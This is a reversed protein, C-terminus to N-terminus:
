GELFAFYREPIEDFQLPGRCRRCPLRPAAAAPRRPVLVTQILREEEVACSPCVYPAVFSEITGTEVLDTGTLAHNCFEMSCRVFRVRRPSLGVLFRNWEVRGVSNIHHLGFLDLEVEELRAVARALDHFSATETFSGAIAVLSPHRPDLRWGFPANVFALEEPRLTFAIGHEWGEAEARQWAVQGSVKVAAGTADSVLSLEVRKTALPADLRLRMGATSLDSVQGRVVGGRQAVDAGVQGAHPRSRAAADDLLHRVRAALEGTPGPLCVVDDYSCGDLLPAGPDLRARDVVLVTYTAALAPEARLRALFGSPGRELRAAEVIVVAPREARACSLLEDLDAVLDARVFPVDALQGEIVPNSCAVVSVM